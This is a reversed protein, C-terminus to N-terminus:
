IRELIAVIGWPVASNYKTVLAYRDAIRQLEYFAKTTVIAGTAGVPDRLSIGFRNPNVEIPNM